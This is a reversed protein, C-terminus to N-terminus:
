GGWKGFAYYVRLRTINTTNAPKGPNPSTSNWWDIRAGLFRYRMGISTMSYETGGTGNYQRTSRSADARWKDFRLTGQVASYTGGFETNDVNGHGPTDYAILRLSAYGDSKLRKSVAGGFYLNGLDGGFPQRAGLVTNLSIGVDLIPANLDFSLDPANARAGSQGYLARPGTKMSGSPIDLWTYAVSATSYGAALEWEGVRNRQAGVPGAAIAALLCGCLVTTMSDARNVPNQPHADTKAPVIQRPTPM